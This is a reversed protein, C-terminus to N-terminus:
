ILALKKAYDSDQNATRGDCCRAVMCCAVLFLVGCACVGVLVLRSLVSFAVPDRSCTRGRSCTYELCTWMRKISNLVTRCPGPQGSLM